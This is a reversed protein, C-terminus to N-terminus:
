VQKMTEIVVSCEEDLELGFKESFIEGVTGLHKLQTDIIGMNEKKDSWLDWSGISNNWHREDFTDLLDKGKSEIQSIDITTKISDQGLKYAIVGVGAVGVITLIKKTRKRM